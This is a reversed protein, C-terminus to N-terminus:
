APQATDGEGEFIGAVGFLIVLVVFDFAIMLEPLM